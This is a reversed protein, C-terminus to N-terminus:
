LPMEPAIPMGLDSTLEGMTCNEERSSLDLYLLTSGIFFWPVSLANALAPMIQPLVDSITGLPISILMLITFVLIYLLAYVVGIGFVLWWNVRVLERSRLLAAISGENEIVIAQPPFWFSVIVFVVLPIMVLLVLFPTIFGLLIVPILIVLM